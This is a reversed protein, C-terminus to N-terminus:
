CEQYKEDGGKKQNLLHECLTVALLSSDCIGVKLTKKISDM